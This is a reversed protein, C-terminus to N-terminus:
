AQIRRATSARGVLAVRASILPSGGEITAYTKLPGEHTAAIALGKALDISSGGGVAILGDCGERRYVAVADRVAAETPNSPTGDYVACPMDGLADLAMQLVGAARVGADTVVLPRQIGVRARIAFGTYFRM